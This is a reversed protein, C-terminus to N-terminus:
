NAINVKLGTRANPLQTTIVQEGSKIANSRSVVLHQSNPRHIIGLREVNVSQMRHNKSVYVRKRGYLVQIPIAYVQNM